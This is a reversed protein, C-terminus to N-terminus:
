QFRVNPIKWCFVWYRAESWASEVPFSRGPFLPRADPIWEIMVDLTIAGETLHRPILFAEEPNFVTKAYKRKADIPDDTATEKVVFDKGDIEYHWPSGHSHNTRM